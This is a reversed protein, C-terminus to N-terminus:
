YLNLIPSNGELSAISSSEDHSDVYKNKHYLQLLNSGLAFVKRISISSYQRKLRRLSRENGGTKPLRQGRKSALVQLKEKLCMACVGVMVEKPHFCCYSNEEGRNRMNFKNPLM